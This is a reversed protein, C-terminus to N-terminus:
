FTIDVGSKEQNNLWFTFVWSAGTKMMTMGKGSAEATKFGEEVLAAEVAAMDAEIVPRNFVYTLMSGFEEKLKVQEKTEGNVEVDFIKKFIPLLIAHVSKSKESIPEVSKTSDFYIEIPSKTKTTTTIQAEGPYTTEPGGAYPLNEEPITNEKNIFFVVLYALVAIIVIGIIIKFFSQNKM